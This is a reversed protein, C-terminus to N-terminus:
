LQSGRAQAVLIRKARQMLIVHIVLLVLGLVIPNLVYLVWAVPTGAAFYAPNAVLLIGYAAAAWGGFQADRRFGDQSKGLRNLVTLAVIMLAIGFWSVPVTLFLVYFFISGIQGGFSFSSFVGIGVLLALTVYLVWVGRLYFRVQKASGDNKL